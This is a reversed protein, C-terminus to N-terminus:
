LEYYDKEEIDAIVEKIFKTVTKSNTTDIKDSYRKKDIDLLIEQRKELDLTKKRVATLLEQNGFIPITKEITEIRSEKYFYAMTFLSGDDYDYLKINGSELLSSLSILLMAKDEISVSLSDMFEIFSLLRKQAVDDLLLLKPISNWKEIDDKGDLIEHNKEVIENIRKTVEDVSADTELLKEEM